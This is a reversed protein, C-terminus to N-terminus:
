IGEASINDQPESETEVGAGTHPVIRGPAGTEATGTGSAAASPSGARTASAGSAPPTALLVDM